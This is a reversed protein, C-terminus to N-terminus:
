KMQGLFKGGIGSKKCAKKYLKQMGANGILEPKMSYLKDYSEVIKAFNNAREYLTALEIHAAFDDPYAKLYQLYAEEAGKPNGRLVELRGVQFRPFREDPRLKAATELRARVQDLTGRIEMWRAQVIENEYDMGQSMLIASISDVNEILKLCYLDDLIGAILMGVNAKIESDSLEVETNGQQVEIIWSKFREEVNKVVPDLRSVPIHVGMSCSGCERLVQSKEGMPILPIFYIHGFKKAQYSTMRGYRGCHDCEAFSKVVRDKFYMRSGYIIM